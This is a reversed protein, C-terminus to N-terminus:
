SMFIREDGDNNGSLDCEPALLVPFSIRQRLHLLRHLSRSSLHLQFSINKNKLASLSSINTVLLRFVNETTECLDLPFSIRVALQHHLVCNHPHRWYEICQNAPVYFHFITLCLGIVFWLSSVRYDFLAALSLNIDLFNLGIMLIISLTFYLFSQFACIQSSLLLPDFKNLQFSGTKAM